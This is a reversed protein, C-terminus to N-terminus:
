GILSRHALEYVDPSSKSANALKNLESKMLKQRKSDFKRWQGLPSILRAAVQPNIQDVKQVISSLFRYGQGGAKHFGAQNNIAFAMVLSRLRNPNKILFDPHNSLNVVSQLANEHEACAQVSFWKDLVLDDKSWRDYFDSLAEAKFGLNTHCLESLAALRDTMTTAIKYQTELLAFAEDTGSAALYSLAVNKLRRGARSQPIMLNASTEENFRQYISVFSDYFKKALERKFMCRAAHINDVDVVKMFQGLYSESPLTLIEALLAPDTSLDSTVSGFGDVMNLPITYLLNQSISAVSELIADKAIEQGAEWRAFPDRDHALLFLADDKPFSTKMVIPASFGRLLSMIPREGVNEFTFTQEKTRLNLMIGDSCNESESDLSVDMDTGDGGLLGIVIPIHFPKKDPQEPTPSCSQRLTLSYTKKKADYSGDASVHPTGAQSYWLRFQELDAGSAFEMASIFDECTVAQGDHREFYIGMGQHFKEKGIINYMMRIVEAGKNYVTATYFNNIEIYKEPRVPHALPGSDEPFQFSRLVRVDDLRKVARSGMDSSFEQDRFVTLGEKLSLQFWDRCTVRNGTWNHFYEHGIVGQIHDYDTDTATQSDALVYKTNFVNLGKNEMAGMNFDGVAVINYVDLDYELGFVKEDWEMSHILSQMAYDCKPLDKEVAYINLSVLKGSKTQYSDKLVSLRGAVLAFLYAPKPWPDLWRAFHKGDELEGEEVLNGNSLLVPNDHRDAIITVDFTAMVDPRDLYYTIHRFGEAECQTCHNGSSKYLGELRTNEQPRIETTISLKFQDPVNHITLKEDCRSYDHESLPKDDLELACLALGEGGDLILNKTHDFSRRFVIHSTVITKTKQIDFQLKVTDILFDPAAYESLLKVLPEKSDGTELKHEREVGLQWTM